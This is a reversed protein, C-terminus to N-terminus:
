ATQPLESELSGRLGRLRRLLHRRQADTLMRDIALVADRLKAQTATSRLYSAEGLARQVIWTEELLSHLEEPSAGQELLVFLDWQRGMRFRYWDDVFDPLDAVIRELELHQSESLEGVWFGLREAAREARLAVRQEPTARLGHREAFRQNNKAIAAKFHVIQEASLTPLVPGILAIGRRAVDDYIRLLQEGLADIQEATYGTMAHQEAFALARVIEDLGERRHQILTTEVRTRLGSGQSTDLALYRNVERMILWDLNAYVLRVFSCGAVTVTVALLAGLVIRGIGPVM